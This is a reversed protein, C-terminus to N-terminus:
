LRRLFGGWGAFEDGKETCYKREVVVVVGM